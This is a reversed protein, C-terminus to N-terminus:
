AMPRLPKHITRPPINRKEDSLALPRDAPSEGYYLDDDDQGDDADQGGDGNGGVFTIDVIIKISEGNSIDLQQFM